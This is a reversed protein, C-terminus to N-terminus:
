QDRQVGRTAFVCLYHGDSEKFYNKFVNRKLLFIVTLVGIDAPKILDKANQQLTLLHDQFLRFCDLIFPTFANYIFIFAKPDCCLLKILNLVSRGIVAENNFNQFIKLLVMSGKEAIKQLFPV